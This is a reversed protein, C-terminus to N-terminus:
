VEFLHEFTWKARVDGCINGISRCIQLLAQFSVVKGFWHAERGHLSKKHDIWNTLM